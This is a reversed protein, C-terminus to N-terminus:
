SLLRLPEATSVVGASISTLPWLSIAIDLAWPSTMLTVRRNEDGLPPPPRTGQAAHARFIERTLSSLM